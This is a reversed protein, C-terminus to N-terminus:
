PAAGVPEPADAPHDPPLSAPMVPRTRPLPRAYLASEPLRTIRTSAPHPAVGDLARAGHELALAGLPATAVIALVALLLLAEGDPVLDPRLKEFTLLPVAGFVAQITAKPVHALAVYRQEDPQLATTRALVRAFAVRVSLAIALVPLALLVLRGSGLAEFRIASGLNAFLVIEGVGWVSRLTDRLARPEGGLRRRTAVALALTAVVGEVWPVRSFGFHLALGAALLLAAALAARRRSATPHPLLRDARLVGAAVVGVAIGAVLALPAALVAVPAGRSTSTLTGLLGLIIVPALMSNVLTQGMILDPVHRPGGRGADKRALMAPLIVAPSVAAVLFGALASMTWSEFHLAHVLTTFVGAEVLVPVIGLLFAAPAIRRLTAPSIGLGARLLLVVFAAASLATRAGLWAPPLLDLAAPGFAVGLALLSVAPPLGLRRLAARWPTGVAVLGAGTLLLLLFPPM